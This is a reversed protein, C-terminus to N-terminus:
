TRCCEPAPTVRAPESTGTSAVIRAAETQVRADFDTQSAQLDTVQTNLGEIQTRAEDRGAAEQLAAGIEESDSAGFIVRSFIDPKRLIPGEIAVVGIGDTVTLLHNAPASDPLKGTRAHFADAAMAM